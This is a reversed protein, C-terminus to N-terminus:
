LNPRELQRKEAQLLSYLTKAHNLQELIKSKPLGTITPDAFKKELEIREKRVQALQFKVM